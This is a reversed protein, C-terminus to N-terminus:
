TVGMEPRPRAAVVALAAAGTMLAAVLIWSPRFSHAADAVGGLIPSSLVVGTLGLTLSAGMATALSGRPMTESMRSEWPAAWGFVAVGLVFALVLLAPEPMGVWAFALALASVGGLLGATVLAPRRGFRDSILGFGVRGVLGGMQLVVLLLAAAAISLGLQQKGYVAIFTMTASASGQVCWFYLTMALFNPNRFFPRIDLPPTRPTPGRRRYLLVFCLTTVLCFAVTVRLAAPWGHALALAPLIAAGLLGAVVVGAQRIGLAVGLRPGAFWSFVARTSGPGVAASIAGALLFLVLLPVFTTAYTATVVLALVAFVAVPMVRGEGYRDSLLGLPLMGLLGGGLIAGSLFGLETRSLHLDALLIPGLAAPAQQVGAMGMQLATLSGLVVWARAPM